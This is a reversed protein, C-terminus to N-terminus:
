FNVFLLWDKEPIVKLAFFYIIAAYKRFLSHVSRAGREGTCVYFVARGRIDVNEAHCHRVSENEFREWLKGHYRM